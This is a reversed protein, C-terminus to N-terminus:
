DSVRIDPSEQFFERRFELQKLARYKVIVGECEIAGDTGSAHPHQDGGPGCPLQQVVGHDAPNPEDVQAGEAAM